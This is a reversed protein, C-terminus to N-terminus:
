GTRNPVTAAAVAAPETKTVFIRDTRQIIAPTTPQIFRSQCAAAQRCGGRLAEEVRVGVRCGLTECLLPDGGVDGVEVLLEALEDQRIGGDPGCAVRAGAQEAEQVGGELGCVLQSPPRSAYNM